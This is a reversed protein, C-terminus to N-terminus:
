WCSNLIHKARQGLPENTGVSDIRHYSNSVASLKKMFTYLHKYIYRIKVLDKVFKGFPKSPIYQIAWYIKSIRMGLDIYFKLLPSIVILESANWALTRCEYPFERGNSLALERMEDSLMSGSVFGKRFIFPFNTKKYKEIVEPPSVIDVKIIGFFSNNTLAELIDDETIKKRCIFPSFDSKFNLDKKKKLRNFYWQPWDSKVLNSDVVPSRLPCVVFNLGYRLGNVVEWLSWNM